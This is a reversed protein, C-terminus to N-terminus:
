QDDGPEDYYDVNGVWPMLAKEVGAPLGEARIVVQEFPVGLMHRSRALGVIVATFDEGSSCMPHSITLKKIPSLMASEEVLGGLINFFYSSYPQIDCRYITFEDLPGLSKLLRGVQTTMLPMFVSATYDYSHCISFHKVNALQPHNSISSTVETFVECHVDDKDEDDDPHVTIDLKIVTADSSRPTLMCTVVNNLELTVEELPSRTYQQSIANWLAPTPLEEPFIGEPDQEFALSVSTISPCSIHATFEFGPGCDAVAIQLRKVNPLVVVREQPIGDLRIFTASMCVTQLTPSAELFDLLQLAPFDDPWARVMFDFKALNPFVFHSLPPTWGSRSYFRFQRLNVATNFFRASPLIIVDSDGRSDKATNFTLSDLLPFPGPNTDIFRQIDAWGHHEFILSGIQSTHSSLLTITSIPVKRRDVHGVHVALRSGKSRELLTKVYAEGKSLLLKSWLGACQLFTRRWHRCVFSARFRDKQPLHTPILSLVGLPLRNIPALSNRWEQITM